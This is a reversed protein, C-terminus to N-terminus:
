MPRPRPRVVVVEYHPFGTAIRQVSILQGQREEAMQVLAQLYTFDVRVAIQYAIGSRFAVIQPDHEFQYPGTIIEDVSAMVGGERGEGSQYGGVGGGGAAPVAPEGGAPGSAGQAHCVVGEAADARVRSVDALDLSDV